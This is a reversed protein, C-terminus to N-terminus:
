PHGKMARRAGPGSGAEAVDAGRHARGPHENTYQPSLVPSCSTGEARVRPQESPEDANRHPAPDCWLESHSSGIHGSTVPGIRFTETFRPLYLGYGFRALGYTAAFLAMGGVVLARM